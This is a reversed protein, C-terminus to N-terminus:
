KSFDYPSQLFPLVECTLIGGNGTLLDIGISLDAIGSGLEIEDSAMTASYEGEFKGEDTFRWNGDGSLVWPNASFDGSDWNETFSPTTRLLKVNDLWAEGLRWDPSPSDDIVEQPVGAPNRTHRWTVIHSGSSLFVDQDAWEGGETALPTLFQGDLFLELSEFPQARL